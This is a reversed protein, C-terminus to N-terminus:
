AAGAHEDIVLRSLEGGLKARVRLLLFAAVAALGAVFGWWLGRAGFGAGFALWLSVPLGILWFGLVNVIMPARTDGVGRLVGISVVQLGDFVQFLAAIPLLSAALVAVAVVSTYAQALAHPLTALVAASVAMVSAGAILAASAARRARPPDGAGVANGVLVATASSLGLPLMFTFSAINIAIQHAAVPITGLHGMLLAVVGFVGYELLFQTGIPLGLRLMRVLPAPAFADRRFPLLHPRLDNWGLVLLGGAMALRSIGTAIAVGPAGRTAPTLAGYTLLWGLLLNLVNAAVIVIVIPRTRHMAQLSQRLVVFVYFGVISPLTIHVFDAARPAVEAPQGLFLLLPEAPVSIAMTPVALVGAIVLGRQLGRTVAERDGAGVAQSIIPDLGMLIGLGFSLLGWAYLNGLAVAALDRASVHGVLITDVVGMAMLGVQVTAVPTALAILARFDARTPREFRHRVPDRSM